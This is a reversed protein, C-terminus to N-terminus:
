TCIIEDRSFTVGRPTASAYSAVLDFSSDLLLLQTGGSAAFVAALRTGDSSAALIRILGTGLTHPGTVIRGNSDYLALEGSSDNSAALVKSHDGSRALVGVGQQFSRSRYFYSRHAFKDRPGSPSCLKSSVPQRLRVM